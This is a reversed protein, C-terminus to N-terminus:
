AGVPRIVTALERVAQPMRPGFGLLYLADLAVVRKALGAPTLAFGPKSLLQERGGLADLGERTILVVDPRAGVVAEVTAPRYGKFGDIANAAGAYRIMAEAATDAGALSLTTGGHALVFLVRPRGPLSAISARTERWEADLRAELARGPDALNLAAAIARVKAKVGEFSHEADTGVVRVGADRLQRLVAPPGVEAAALLLQPRMSLVGEASLARMYGVRPLTAAAQPATSTTDVAVLRNGAGLAFVIETLAGGAAVVRQAPQACAAQAAFVAAAAVGLALRIVWTRNM